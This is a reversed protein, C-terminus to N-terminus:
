GSRAACIRPAPATHSLSIAPKDLLAQLLGLFFVLTFSVGDAVAAYGAVQAAHGAVVPVINLLVVAAVAVQEEILECALVGGLVVLRVYRHPHWAGTVSRGPPIPDSDAEAHKPDRAEDCPAAFLLLRSTHQPKAISLVPDRDEFRRRTTSYDGDAYRLMIASSFVIGVEQGKRPQYKNNCIGPVVVDGQVQREAVFGQTLPVLAKEVRVQPVDIVLVQTNAHLAHFVAVRLLFTEELRDDGREPAANPGLAGAQVATVQLCM